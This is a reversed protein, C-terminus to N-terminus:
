ETQVLPVPFRRLPPEGVMTTSEDPLAVTVRPPADYELVLMPWPTATSYLLMMDYMSEIVSLVWKWRTVARPALAEACVLVASVETCWVNAENDAASAPAAVSIPDPSRTDSSTTSLM